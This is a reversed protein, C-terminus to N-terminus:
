KIQMNSEEVLKAGKIEVGSKLQKKIETKDASTSVRLFEVPIVSLDTIEVSESKRYSINVKPTKFKNGNLEKKLLETLRDAKNECSKIRADLNKKEAKVMEAEAKLNKIWLAINELKDNKEFALNQLREEDIIEGSEMDVCELIEKNIEYLSAM